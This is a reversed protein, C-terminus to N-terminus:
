KCSKCTSCGTGCAGTTAQLSPRLVRGLRRMAAPCGERELWFSLRAQAQWMAAPALRRLLSLLSLGVVLAVVGAQLLPSM